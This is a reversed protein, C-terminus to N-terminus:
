RYTCKIKSDKKSYKGQGIVGHKCISRLCINKPNNLWVSMRKQTCSHMLIQSDFFKSGPLQVNSILQYIYRKDIENIGDVVEKGHGHASIGQYIIISLCQPPFPM